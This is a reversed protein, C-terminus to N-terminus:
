IEADFDIMSAASAMDKALESEEAAVHSDAQAFYKTTAEALRRRNDLQRMRSVIIDLAEAVTAADGRAIMQELFKHTEPSVTTSLKTRSMKPAIAGM